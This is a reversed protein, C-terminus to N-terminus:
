SSSAAVDIDFDTILFFRNLPTLEGCVGCSSCRMWSSPCIPLKLTLIFVVAGCAAGTM